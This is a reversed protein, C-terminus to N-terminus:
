SLAPAPRARRQRSTWNQVHALALMGSGLLTSVTEAYPNPMWLGSALLCLGASGLALPRVNGRRRWGSGLAVASTPVAFLLVALHFGEGLDLWQSLAPTAALLLPLFLCHLVCLTSATMAAGDLWDDFTRRM